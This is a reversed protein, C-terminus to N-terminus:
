NVGASKRANEGRRRAEATKAKTTKALTKGQEAPRERVRVRSEDLKIKTAKDRYNQPIQRPENTFFEKGDKEVWRYFDAHASSVSFLFICVALAAFRLM